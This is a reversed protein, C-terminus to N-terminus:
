KSEINTIESPHLESITLHDRGGTAENKFEELSFRPPFFILLHAKSAFEDLAESTMGARREVYEFKCDTTDVLFQIIAEGKQSKIECRDDTLSSVVGTLSFAADRFVCQCVILTKEEAWKHMMLHAEDPTIM